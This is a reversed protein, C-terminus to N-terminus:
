CPEFDPLASRTLADAHDSIFRSYTKEIQQVSSDHHAAVVRVPIGTLLQRTISSHRLAYASIGDGARLLPFRKAIENPRWPRGDSMTLLPGDAINRQL